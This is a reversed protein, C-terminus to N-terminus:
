PNDPATGSDVLALADQAPPPTPLDRLGFCEKNLERAFSYLDSDTSYIREVRRTAAIAVIQRDYKLKAWTAPHNAKLRKGDGHKRWHEVLEVAEPDDFGAIEFVSKRKIITLYDSWRDAALLLFETLAPTPVIIKDRRESITQVLFDIREQPRDIISVGNKDRPIRARDDFLIHLFGADFLSIM